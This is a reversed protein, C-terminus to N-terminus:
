KFMIESIAEIVLDPKEDISQIAVALEDLVAPNLVELEYAEALTLFTIVATRKNGDVFPHGKILFYFFASCIDKETKYHCVGFPCTFINAVITSIKKESESSIGFAVGGKEILVSYLTCINKSTQQILKEIDQTM